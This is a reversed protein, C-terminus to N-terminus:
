SARMRSVRRGLAMAQRTGRRAVGDRPRARGLVGARPRAGVAAIMRMTSPVSKRSPLRPRIGRGPLGSKARHHREDEDDDARRSHRRYPRRYRRAKGEARARREGARAGGGRAASDRRGGGAGADGRLWVAHADAVHLVQVAGQGWAPCRAPPLGSAVQAHPLAVVLDGEIALTAPAHLDDCEVALPLKAEGAFGLARAVYALLAEDDLRHRHRLAGARGALRRGRGGASSRAARLARRRDQGAAGDKAATEQLMRKDGVFFDIEEAQLLALLSAVNGHRVRAVVQPSRRRLEALPLLVLM